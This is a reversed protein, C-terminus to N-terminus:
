TTLLMNISLVKYIGSRVLSSVSLRKWCELRNKKAHSTIIGGLKTLICQQWQVCVWLVRVKLLLSTFSFALPIVLTQDVMVVLIICKYFWIIAELAYLLPMSPKVDKRMSMSLPLKQLIREISFTLVFINPEPFLYLMNITTLSPTTPVWNTHALNSPEYNHSSDSALSDPSDSSETYQKSPYGKTRLLIDDSTFLLVGALTAQWRM